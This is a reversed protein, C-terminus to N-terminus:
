RLTFRGFPKKGEPSGLFMTNYNFNENETKQLYSLLNYNRVDLTVYVYIICPSLLLSRLCIQALFPYTKRHIKYEELFTFM